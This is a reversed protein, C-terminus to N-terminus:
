RGRVLDSFRTRLAARLLRPRARRGPRRVFLSRLPRKPRYPAQTLTEPILTTKADARATTRDTEADACHDIWRVGSMGRVASPRGSRLAGAGRMGFPLGSKEPVHSLRTGGLPRRPPGATVDSVGSAGGSPVKTSMPRLMGPPRGSVGHAASSFFFRM